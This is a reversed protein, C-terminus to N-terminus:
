LFPLRYLALFINYTTNKNTDNACSYGAQISQFVGFYLIM